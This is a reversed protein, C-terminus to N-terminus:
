PITDCPAVVSYVIDKEVTENKGTRANFFSMKVRVSYRGPKRQAIVSYNAVGSEDVPVPMNGIIVKPQISSSFAGVGATIDIKNGPLVVNTSQGIIVEYGSIYDVLTMAMNDCYAAIKNEAIRIDTELKALLLLVESCTTKDKTFCDMWEKERSEAFDPLITKGLDENVRIDIALIDKRYTRMRNLLSRSEQRTLFISRAIADADKDTAQPLKNRLSTIYACTAMSKHLVPQIKAEWASAREKTSFDNKKKELNFLINLTCAYISKKANDLTQIAEHTVNCRYNANDTSCSILKILQYFARMYRSKSFSFVYDCNEWFRLEPL